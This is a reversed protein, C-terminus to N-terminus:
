HEALFKNVFEIVEDYKQDNPQRELENDPHSSRQMLRINITNLSASLNFIVFGADFLKGIKLFEIEQQNLLVSLNIWYLEDTSICKYDKEIISVEAYNEKGEGHKNRFKIGVIDGQENPDLSKSIICLVATTIHEKSTIGEEKITGFEQNVKDVFEDIKPQFDASKQQAKERQSKLLNEEILFLSKRVNEIEKCHIKPEFGYLFNLTNEIRGKFTRIEKSSSEILDVDKIRIHLLKRRFDIDIITPYAAYLNDSDQSYIKVPKKDLLLLRLNDFDYRRYGCIVFDKESDNNVNSLIKNDSPVNWKRLLDKLETENNCLINEVQLKYLYSNFLTDEILLFLLEDLDVETILGEEIGKVLTKAVKIARDEDDKQALVDGYFKNFEAFKNMFELKQMVLGKRLYPYFLKLDSLIENSSKKM